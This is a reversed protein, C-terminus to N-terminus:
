YWLKGIRKNRQYEQAKQKQRERFEELTKLQHCKFCLPQLNNSDWFLEEDGRHPIIHDVVTAPAGCRCCVPNARLFERSIKTWRTDKYLYAWAAKYADYEGGLFRGAEPVELQRHHECYKNPYDALNKCGPKKCLRKLGM